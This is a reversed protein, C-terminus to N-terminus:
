PLDFSTSTVLPTVPQPQDEAASLRRRTKKAGDNNDSDFPTSELLEQLCVGRRLFIQSFAQLKFHCREITATTPRGVTKGAPNGM